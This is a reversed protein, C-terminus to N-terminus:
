RSNVKQEVRASEVTFNVRKIPSFSADLQISGITESDVLELFLLMM